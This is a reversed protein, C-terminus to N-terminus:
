CGARAETSSAPRRGATSPSRRDPSRALCLSVRVCRRCRRRRGPGDTRDSGRRDRAAEAEGYSARPVPSRRSVRRTAIWRRRSRSPDREGHHWGARRRRQSAERFNSSPMASAARLGAEPRGGGRQRVALLIVRGQGSARLHPLVARTVRVSAMGKGNVRVMSSPTPSARSTLPTVTSTRGRHMASSSTWGVLRHRPRRSRM